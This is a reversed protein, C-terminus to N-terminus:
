LKYFIRIAAPCYATTETMGFNPHWDTSYSEVFKYGDPQAAWAANKRKIGIGATIELMLRANNFLELQKGAFLAAGYVNMTVKSYSRVTNATSSRIFTASDYYSYNKYRLDLGFFYENNVPLFYKIMGSIRYGSLRDFNDVWLSKSLYGAEAAFGWRENARYDVGLGYGAHQPEFVSLPNFSIKLGTAWPDINKRARASQGACAFSVILLSFIFVSRM